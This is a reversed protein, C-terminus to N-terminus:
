KKFCGRHVKTLATPSQVIEDIESCGVLEEKTFKSNKNNCWTCHNAHYGFSLGDFTAVYKNTFVKTRSRSSANSSLYIDYFEAAAYPGSLKLVDINRSCFHDDLWPFGVAGAKVNTLCRSVKELVLRPFEHHAESILFGILMLTPHTKGNDYFHSNMYKVAEWASIFDYLEVKADINAISNLHIDTDM